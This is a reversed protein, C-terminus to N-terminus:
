ELPEHSSLTKKGPTQSGRPGLLRLLTKWVNKGLYVLIMLKQQDLCQEPNIPSVNAAPILINKEREM